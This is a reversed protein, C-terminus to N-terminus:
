KELQLACLGIVQEDAADTETGQRGLKAVLAVLHSYRQLFAPILDLVLASCHSLLASLLQLGLLITSLDQTPLVSISELCFGLM